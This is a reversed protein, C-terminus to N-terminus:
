KSNYIYKIGSFGDLVNHYKTAEPNNFCITLFSLTEIDDLAAKDDYMDDVACTLHALGSREAVCYSGHSVKQKEVDFNCFDHKEDNTQPPLLESLGNEFKKAHKGVDLETMTVKFHSEQPMAVRFKSVYTICNLIHVLKCM